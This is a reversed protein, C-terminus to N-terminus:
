SAGRVRAYRVAVGMRQSYCCSVYRPTGCIRRASGSKAYKWVKLSREDGAVSEAPGYACVGEGRERAPVVTLEARRGALM